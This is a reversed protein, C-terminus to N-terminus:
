IMCVLPLAFNFTQLGTSLLSIHFPIQQLSLEGQVGAAAGGAIAAAFAASKSTMAEIGVMAEPTAVVTAKLEQFAVVVNKALANNSAVFAKVEVKDQLLRTDVVVHVPRLCLTDFFEHFTLSVDDLLDGNGSATSYRCLM